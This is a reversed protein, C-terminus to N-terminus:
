SLGRYIGDEDVAQAFEKWDMNSVNLNNDVSWLERAICRFSDRHGLLDVVQVAFDADKLAHDDVVFLVSAETPPMARLLLEVSKGWWRREDVEFVYPRFGDENVSRVVDVLEPWRGREGKATRVLLSDDSRPLM